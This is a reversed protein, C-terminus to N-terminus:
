PAPQLQARRKKILTFIGQLHMLVWVPSLTDAFFCLMEDVHEAFQKVRRFTEWEAASLGDTAMEQIIVALRDRESKWYRVYVIRTETKYIGEAGPMVWVKVRRRFDAPEDKSKQWAILLEDM